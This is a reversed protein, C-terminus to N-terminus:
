RQVASAWWSLWDESEVPPHRKGKLHAAREAMTLSMGESKKWLAVTELRAEFKSVTTPRTKRAQMRSEESASSM